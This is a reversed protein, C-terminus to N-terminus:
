AARLRFLFLPVANLSSSLLLLSVMMCQRLTHHISLLLVASVPQPHMELQASQVIFPCLEM